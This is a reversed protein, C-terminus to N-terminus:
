NISWPQSASVRCTSQEVAQVVVQKGATWPPLTGRIVVIGAADATASAVVRPDRILITAGACGAISNAGDATGVVISVEAGPTADRIEFTVSRDHDQWPGRMEMQVPTLLLAVEQDRISDRGRALIQGGNNIDGAGSLSEIWYGPPQILYQSLDYVWGESWIVTKYWYAGSYPDSALGLIEGVDNMDSASMNRSDEFTPLVHIQGDEWLVALEQADGVIQSTGLIQNRNNLGEVTTRTGGLSPLEHMRGQRDWWAPILQSRQDRYGGAIVGADNLYAGWIPTNSFIHRQLGGPGVVVIEGSGELYPDNYVNILVEDLNNVTEVTQYHWSAGVDIRVQRGNRSLLVHSYEDNRDLSWATGVALGRNSISVYHCCEDNEPVAPGLDTIVGNRWVFGNFVASNGVSVDTVWSGTIEGSENIANAGLTYRGLTPLVTVQYRDPPAASAALPLAFLCVSSYISHM